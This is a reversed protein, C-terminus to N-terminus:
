SGLRFIRDRIYRSSSGRRRAKIARKAANFCNMPEPEKQVISTERWMHEVRGALADLMDYHHAESNRRTNELLGRPFAEWENLLDRLDEHVFVKGARALPELGNLIRNYKSGGGITLGIFNLSGRTKEAEQVTFRFGKDFSTNQGGCWRTGYTGKMLYLLDLVQSPNKAYKGDIIWLNGGPGVAACVVAAKDGFDRENDALDITAAWEMGDPPIRFEQNRGWLRVEPLKIVDRSTFQALHERNFRDTAMTERRRETHERVHKLPHDEYTGHWTWWDPDALADEWLKPFFDPDACTFPDPPTGAFIAWGRRVMLMPELVEEWDATKWLGIEDGGLGDLTDGRLYDPNGLSKLHLESTITGTIKRSVKIVWGAKTAKAQVLDAQILEILADVMENYVTECRDYSPAVFWYKGPKKFTERLLIDQLKATKGIQRSVRLLFRNYQGSYFAREFEMQWPWAPSNFHLETGKM